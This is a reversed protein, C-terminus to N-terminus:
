RGDAYSRIEVLGLQESQQEGTARTLRWWTGALLIVLGAGYASAGVVSLKAGAGAGLYSVTAAAVVGLWEPRGVRAALALLLLTYWPLSPTAALLAVGLVILASRDPYDPDARWAAWAMAAAVALVAVIEAPLPPLAAGILRYGRGTSYGDEHLYGPLYGIVGDGVALVHPLYTVAIVAVMGGLVILPRRRLLSPLLLVPYLKTVIAAGLWAGTALPRRREAAGIALLGLLVALWDIHANNGLEMVTMPCWGWMAVTWLPRGTRVARHALLAAIALAGAAAALQLPYHGGHGGFSILRLAVFAAQAVPPYVTHQNPLNILTCGDAISHPCPHLGAPFLFDDRLFALHSSTPAFRYPDIGALQVKADWTYRFDDDSTVPTHSVALLQLGAAVAMVIKVAQSTTWACRPLLMLAAVFAVLAGMERLLIGLQQAEGPHVAFALLVTETALALGLGVRAWRIASTVAEGECTRRV